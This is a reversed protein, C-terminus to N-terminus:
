IPPRSADTYDGASLAVVKACSALPSPFKLKSIALEPIVILVPIHNRSCASAFAAATNGASAVTLVKDSGSPMRGLVCYAELEKFSDTSLFAGREPWYGNFSIWLNGLGTVDSVRWSKFTVPSASGHLLREIPLWNRYRYIGEEHPSPEFNHYDYSSKLLSTERCHSCYLVYGDDGIVDVCGECILKYPGTSLGAATQLSNSTM